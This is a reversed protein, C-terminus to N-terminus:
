ATRGLVAPYRLRGSAASLAACHQVAMAMSAVDDAAQACRLGHAAMGHRWAVGHWALTRTRLREGVDARQTDGRQQLHEATAASHGSM